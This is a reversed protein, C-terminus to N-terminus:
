LKAWDIKKFCRPPQPGFQGQFYSKLDASGYVLEPVNNHYFELRSLPRGHTLTINHLETSRVEFVAPARFGPDFFGAFHIKGELSSNHNAHLFASKDSPIAVVEKSCLLICQEPELVLGGHHEAIHLPEYFNLPDYFDRRTLDVPLSTHRARLGVVQKSEKCELDLHLQLGDSFIAPPTPVQRMLTDYLLPQRKALAHLESESLKADYGVFFRAQTLSQGQYVITNFAYPQLLIWLALPGKTFPSPHVEDLSTNFNALIRADLFIRGTSSRPSFKVKEHAGLLFQERLRILYTHGTQLMVGNSLDLAHKQRAPIDKVLSAITNDPEPSLIGAIDSNLAYGEGSLTPEFSAPQFSSKDPSDHTETVIKKELFRARLEHDVLCRGREDM